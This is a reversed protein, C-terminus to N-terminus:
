MDRWSAVGRRRAWWRFVTMAVETIPTDSLGGIPGSLSAGLGSLKLRSSDSMTRVYRM